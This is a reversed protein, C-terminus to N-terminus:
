HTRTAAAGNLPGMFMTQWAQLVPAMAHPTAAPRTASPANTLMEGQLRMGALAMDQMYRALEQMGSVMLESQITALEVPSSASRLREAAQQHNLALRQVMQLQVQHFAEAGRLFTSTGEAYLALGQRSQEVTDAQASATTETGAEPSRTTKSTM